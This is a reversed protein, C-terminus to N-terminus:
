VCLIQRIEPLMSGAVQRQPPEVNVTPDAFLPLAVMLATSLASTVTHSLRSKTTYLDATFPLNDSFSSTHPFNCFLHYNHIEQFSGDAPFHQFFNAGAIGIFDVEVSAPNCAKVLAPAAHAVNALLITTAIAFIKM